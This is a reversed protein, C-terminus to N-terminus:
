LKIFEEKYNNNANKIQKLGKYFLVVGNIICFLFFLLYLILLILQSLIFKNQHKTESQILKLDLDSKNYTKMKSILLNSSERFLSNLSDVMKEHVIIENDYMLRVSDLLQTQGQAKILLNSMAKNTENSKVISNNLQRNLEDVSYSLDEVERNILDHNISQFKEKATIKSKITMQGFCSESIKELKNSLYTMSFIILLLGSVASYNIKRM